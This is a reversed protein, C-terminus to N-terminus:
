SHEGVRHARHQAPTTHSESIMPLRQAHVGYRKAVIRYDFSLTSHGGELERVTFGQPTKQAVYLGRCDGDPTVTVFYASEADIVNVFKPDLAVNASGDVLTAEGNDEITPESEVPTYERVSRTLKNGTLCGSHCAGGSYLLGRIFLDGTDAVNLEQNLLDDYVTLVPQGTGSTGGFLIMTPFHDGPANGFVGATDSQSSTQLQGHVTMLHSTDLTVIDNGSQDTVQILDHTPGAGHMFLEPATDSPGQNLNLSTGLASYAYVGVSNTGGAFAHLGDNATGGDALLGAGNNDHTTAVNRGAAGFGSASGTQGYVGTSNASLGEVANFSTSTGLVGAGNTSAGLVGANLTGSSSLDEGFVGAKGATKGTSNFKTQGHVANGKSSVGKIADGSKTNDWELCASTQACSMIADFAAHAPTVCIAGVGM